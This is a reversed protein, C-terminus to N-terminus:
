LAGTKAILLSTDFAGPKASLVNVGNRNAATKADADLVGNEVLIVCAVDANFAVAVVNINCLATLWVNDPKLKSMALSLIDGTYAGNIERDPRPMSLINFQGYESLQEVTM